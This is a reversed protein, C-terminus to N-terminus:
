YVCAYKTRDDIFLWMLACMIEFLVDRPIDPIRLIDLRIRNFLSTNSYAILPTKPIFYLKNNEHIINYLTTKSSYACMIRYYPNYQLKFVLESTDLASKMYVVNDKSIYFKSTRGVGIETYVMKVYDLNYVAVRNEFDIDKAVFMTTDFFEVNDYYM